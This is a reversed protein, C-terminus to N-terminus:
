VLRRRLAPSPTDALVSGHLPQTQPEDFATAPPRSPSDNTVTETVTM